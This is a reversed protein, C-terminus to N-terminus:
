QLQAVRAGEGEWELEWKWEDRAGRGGMRGGRRRQMRAGDVIRRPKRARAPVIGFRRRELSEEAVDVLGVIFVM